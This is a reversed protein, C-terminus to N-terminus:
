NEHSNASECFFFFLCKHWKCFYFVSSSVWCESIIFCQASLSLTLSVWVWLWMCWDFIHKNKNTHHSRACPRYTARDSIAMNSNVRFSVLFVVVFEGGFVHKLFILTIELTFFILKNLWTIHTGRSKWLM